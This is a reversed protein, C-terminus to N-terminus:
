PSHDVWFAPLTAHNILTYYIFLPPNLSILFDQTDFSLYVQTTCNYSTTSTITSKTTSTYSFTSSANSIKHYFGFVHAPNFIILNSRFSTHYMNTLETQKNTERWLKRRGVNIKFRRPIAWILHSDHFSYMASLRFLDLYQSFRIWNWDQCILPLSFWRTVGIM